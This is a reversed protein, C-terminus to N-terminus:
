DDQDIYGTVMQQHQHNGFSTGIVPLGTKRRMKCLCDSLAQSGQHMLLRARRSLFNDTCIKLPQV